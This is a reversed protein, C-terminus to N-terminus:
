HTIHAFHLECFEYSRFSICKIHLKKPALMYLFSAVKEEATKRGLLLMWERATDLEDMTSHLLRKELEPYQKLLREFDSRLFGCMEVDTAAEAYIQSNNQYTRGIFDSAFQLGVIQQRGDALTKTLKVVGGTIIGVFDAPGEASLIVQGPPITKHRTVQNLSNLEEHSLAGCVARQRATCADCKKRFSSTSTNTRFREM